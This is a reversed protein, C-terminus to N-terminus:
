TSILITLQQFQLSTMHTVKFSVLHSVNPTISKENRIFRNYIWNFKKQARTVQQLNLHFKRRRHYAFLHCFYSVNKYIADINVAPKFNFIMGYLFIIKGSTDFAYIWAYFRLTLPLQLLWPLTSRPILRNITLHSQFQKQADKSLICNM